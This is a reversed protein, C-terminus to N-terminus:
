SKDCWKKCLATKNHPGYEVSETENEIVSKDKEIDCGLRRIWNCLLYKRCDQDRKLLSSEKKRLRKQELSRSQRSKERIVEMLSWHQFHKLRARAELRAELFLKNSKNLGQKLHKLSM